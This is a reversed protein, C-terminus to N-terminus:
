GLSSLLDEIESDLVPDESRKKSRGKKGRTSVSLGGARTTESILGELLREQYRKRIRKRKLYNQVGCTDIGRIIGFYLGYRFAEENDDPIQFMGTLEKIDAIDAEQRPLKPNKKAFFRRADSNLRKLKTPNSIAKLVQGAGVM